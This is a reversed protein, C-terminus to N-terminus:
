PGCCSRNGRMAARWMLCHGPRHPPIADPPLVVVALEGTATDRGDSVVYGLTRPGPDTPATYRVRGDSTVPVSEKADTASTLVM